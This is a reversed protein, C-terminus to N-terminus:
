DIVHVRGGVTLMTLAQWIAVDFTLPANFAVTDNEDLGYLDVVVALHNALGHRTVLVGKPTGTSGSTFVCYALADRATEAPPEPRDPGTAEPTLITLPHGPCAAAIAAARDRMGDAAVLVRVDVERLSQAARAVPVGPDLALYAGGSDLVGLAAAVFW